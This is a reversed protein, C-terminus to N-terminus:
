AEVWGECLGRVRLRVRWLPGEEEAEGRVKCHWGRHHDHYRPQPLIWEGCLPGEGEVGGEM